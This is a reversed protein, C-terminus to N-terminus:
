GSLAGPRMLSAAAALTASNDTGGGFMAAHWLVFRGCRRGGRVTPTSAMGRRWGTIGYQATEACTAVKGPIILRSDMPQDATPETMVDVLYGLPWRSASGM